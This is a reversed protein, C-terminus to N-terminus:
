APAAPYPAPEGAPRPSEFEGIFVTAQYDPLDAPHQDPYAMARLMLETRDRFQGLAGNGDFCLLGRARNTDHDHDIHAAPAKRCIACVGNRETFMRDFHEVTM